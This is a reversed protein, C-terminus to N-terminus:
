ATFLNKFGKYQNSVATEALFALFFLLKFSDGKVLFIM